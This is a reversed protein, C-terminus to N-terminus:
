DPDIPHDNGSHEKIGLLLMLLEPPVDAEPIETQYMQGSEVRERLSRWLLAREDTAVVLDHL